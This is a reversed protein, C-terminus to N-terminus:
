IQDRTQLYENSGIIGAVLQEYTGGNELFQVDAALAAPDAPRLLFAQYATEVLDREAEASTTVFLAVQRDSV